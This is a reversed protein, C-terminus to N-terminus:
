STHDLIISWLSNRQRLVLSFVGNAPGGAAAPRDLHFEGLVIASHMDFKDIELHSFTLQGMAARDAYKRRYSEVVKNRGHVVQKGVYTCDDAYFAAFADLDGRNWAAVQKSLMSRIASDTDDALLFSASGLVM